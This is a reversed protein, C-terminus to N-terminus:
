CPKFVQHWHEQIVDAFNLKTQTHAFVQFNFFTIVKDLLLM